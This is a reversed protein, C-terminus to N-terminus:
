RGGLCGGLYLQAPLGGRVGAEALWAAAFLANLADVDIDPRREYRISRM